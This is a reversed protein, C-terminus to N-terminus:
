IYIYCLWVFGYEICRPTRVNTTVKMTILAGGGQLGHHVVVGTQVPKLLKGLINNNNNNNNGGGAAAATSENNGNNGQSSSPEKRSHYYAQRHQQQQQQQQPKTRACSALVGRAVDGALAEREDQELTRKKGSPNKTWKGEKNITCDWDTDLVAHGGTAAATDPSRRSLGDDNAFLSQKLATKGTRFKSFSGILAALMELCLTTAKLRYCNSHSVERKWRHIDQGPKNDSDWVQAGERLSWCGRSRSGSDRNPHRRHIHVYRYITRMSFFSLDQM